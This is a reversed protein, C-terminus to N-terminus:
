FAKLHYSEQGATVHMHKADQFTGTFHVCSQCTTPASCSDCTAYQTDRSVTFEITNDSWTGSLTNSATSTNETGTFAGSKAPAGSGSDSLQYSRTSDEEAIWNNTIAILFITAEAAGCAAVLLGMAIWAKKSRQM